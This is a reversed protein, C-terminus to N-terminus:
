DHPRTLCRLLSAFLTESEFPKALFDNMGAEFCRAKDEAFANATMAIIPTERYGPLKRIQRTAELGDVNPMQMDMLIAAYSTEQAMTVAEAGDEATDVALGAAELQIQAVERNIPEDDVVLVRRGRHRQRIEAEAGFSTATRAVIAEASKKLKVTFWFTSGVGPTSEVGAEGGMLEALRRTIALGLGTGGYKRTTSNDAQEFASFLRSMAESPIGIGSDQVEFRVRVSDATEEQKLARLTVSGQETFKIANTGYNLLAQQLRTPDGYLNAPLVGTDVVLLRINKERAREALISRVNTLLSHVTVPAEEIEFKGAEIKSIDLVSNIIGLLHQAASDIKDLRQAQESTVGGRRLLHAMGLIGNMPTRIEHSMNALFASKAVNAAEAAEKAKALELTRQRIRDELHMQYDLLQQENRKRETIDRVVALIRQQSGIIAYRLSVEVWFHHGDRARALWDFTQTGVTRALRLKEAAEASSYPPSGASLETPGCALAAERTLGYMECMGRNVDLIRGTEADHIFIADSVTDFIERFRSESEALAQEAQKRATIDRTVGLLGAISGNGDRMPVAHTELWRHGGKLGVIEFELTGSEGRNVRENLATFAERDHPAVIGVISKGLVQDISDAEIMDLGARNMQRLSGDPGLVKVCEPETEIIAQLEREKAALEQRIRTAAELAAVFISSYSVTLWCVLVLLLSLMLGFFVPSGLTALTPGPLVGGLQALVLGVISAVFLSAVGVAAATGWVFGFLMVVVSWLMMGIAYVGLGTVIASIM